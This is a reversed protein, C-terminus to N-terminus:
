RSAHARIPVIKPEQVRVTLTKMLLVHEAVLRFGIKELLPELFSQYHRVPISVPGGDGMQSVGFLLADEALAPDDPQVLLSFWRTRPRLQLWALLSGDKEVVFDRRVRPLSVRWNSPQLGWGETWRWEQMTTGEVQRVSQPVVSCYLQFIAHHDSRRRSRPQVALSAVQALHSGNSLPSLRYVRETCYQYFGAQRAALVVASDPSTRLFVKQVGEECAAWSLHRFLNIYTSEETSSQAVLQDIDWYDTGLRAKVSVLGSISGDQIEIWSEHRPDISLSRTIFTKLDPSRTFSGPLDAAVNTLAQNRFALYAVIDTPRLARIM